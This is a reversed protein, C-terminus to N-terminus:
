EKQITFGECNLEEDLLHWAQEYEYDWNAYYDSHIEEHTEMSGDAILRAWHDLCPEHNLQLEGKFYIAETM